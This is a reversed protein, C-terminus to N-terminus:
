HLPPSEVKPLQIACLKEFAADAGETVTKIPGEKMNLSQLQDNVFDDEELDISIIHFMTRGLFVVAATNKKKKSTNEFPAFVVRPDDNESLKSRCLRKAAETKVMSYRALSKIEGLNFGEEIFIVMAHQSLIFQRDESNSSQIILDKLHKSRCLVDVQAKLNAQKISEWKGRKSSTLQGYSLVLTTLERLSMNRGEQGTLYDSTRSMVLGTNGMKCCIYFVTRLPIGTVFSPIALTQFEEYYDLVDSAVSRPVAEDDISMIVPLATPLFTFTNYDFDVMIYVFLRESHIRQLTTLGFLNYIFPQLVEEGWEVLLKLLRKNNNEISLRICRQNQECDSKHSKWHM